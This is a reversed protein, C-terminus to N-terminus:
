AQSITPLGLGAARVDESGTRHRLSLALLVDAALVRSRGELDAITRSVRLVRHRGRASLVGSDYARALLGSAREEVRGWRRLQGASLEANCSVGSGAYRQLQRDRAERVRAQATRSDTVAEATLEKETPKQVTVLLDM